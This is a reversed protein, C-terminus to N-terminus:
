RDQHHDGYTCIGYSTLASARTFGPLAPVELPRKRTPPTFDMAHSEASVPAQSSVVGEGEPTGPGIAGAGESSGLPMPALKEAEPAGVALADFTVQMSAIATNLDEMTKQQEEDMKHCSTLPPMLVEHAAQVKAAASVMEIDPIDSSDGPTAETPPAKTTTLPAAM